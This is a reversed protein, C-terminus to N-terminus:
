ALQWAGGRVIHLGPKLREGRPGMWFLPARAYRERMAASRAQEAELAAPGYLRLIQAERTPRSVSYASM